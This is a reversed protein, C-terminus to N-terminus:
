SPKASTTLAAILSRRAAGGASPLAFEWKFANRALYQLTAFYATHTFDPSVLRRLHTRMQAGIRNGGPMTRSFYHCPIQDINTNVRNKSRLKAAVVIAPM